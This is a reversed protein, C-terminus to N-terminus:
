LFDVADVADVTDVLIELTQQHLTLRTERIVMRQLAQKCAHTERHLSLYHLSRHPGLSVLTHCLDCQVKEKGTSDTYVQLTIETADPLIFPISAVPQQSSSATSTSVSM